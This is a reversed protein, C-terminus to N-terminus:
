VSQEVSLTPVSTPTRWRTMWLGIMAAVLSTEPLGVLISISEGAIGVYIFAVILAYLLISAVTRKKESIYTHLSGLFFGWAIMTAIVGTSGFNLYGESLFFFARGENAGYGGGYVKSIYWNQLPAPRSPFLAQPIFQLPARIYTMGLEPSITAGVSEIMQPLTEFPVVFEGNTLTYTLDQFNTDSESEWSKSTKDWLDGANEYSSSRLIGILNLAVFGVVGTVLLTRIKLPRVAHHWFLWVALGMYLLTARRAMVLHMLVVFGFGIAFALLYKRKRTAAYGYLLFMCAVFFWTFGMALYGKGTMETTVGYGLLLLNFLGGVSTALQVILFLSFGALVLSALLWKQGGRIQPIRAAIRSSTRSYYAPVFFILGVACLFVAKPIFPLLEMLHPTVDGDIELTMWARLPLPVVFLCFFFIFQVIPDAISAKRAVIAYALACAATALFFLISILLTLDDM